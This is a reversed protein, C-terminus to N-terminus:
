GEGVRRRLVRILGGLLPLREYVMAGLDFYDRHYIVLDDAFILHSAGDFSFPKGGNLRPTVLTMRWFMAAGGNDNMWATSIDSQCLSVNEMAKQFRVTLAALGREEGAPDTFVIDKHYIRGLRAVSDATFNQYFDRVACLRTDRIDGEKM